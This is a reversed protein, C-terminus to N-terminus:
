SHAQGLRALVQDPLTTLDGANMTLCLDGPRLNAVLFDVLASRDEIVQLEAQPHARRIAQAVTEAGIGEIPQQGASYLGAIVVIDADVFSDVFDAGVDRIRTYRHPQFVGVVRRWGGARAARIVTAVETPLHAYDDVFTIENAAGRFEFRRGVGTFTALGEALHQPDAGMLHYLAFVSVANSANHLGPVALALDVLDEGQHQVTCWTRLGESRANVIRYEADASFGYTHITKAQSTPSSAVRALLSRNGYDDICVVSPGTGQTVFQDFAAQLNDMNGHFDLHDAEINTVITNAAGFRLFSNDSEDAEVILMESAAWRVGTGLNNVVGGVIFSPQWGLHQACMAAMASTTTKGHTGSIAVVQRLEGLAEMMEPRGAVPIGLRKAEVLEVNDAGIATSVVVLDAQIVLQADHGVTVVIGDTRLRNLAESDVQDSGTVTWGLTAMIHCIASMAAGGAAVVHARGPVSLNPVVRGVEHGRITPKAPTM